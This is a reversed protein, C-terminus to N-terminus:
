TLYDDDQGDHKLQSVLDTGACYGLAAEALSLTGLSALLTVWKSTKLADPPFMAVGLLSLGLGARILKGRSDINHTIQLEM